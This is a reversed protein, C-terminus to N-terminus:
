NRRWYVRGRKEGLLEKKLVSGNRDVIIMQDLSRHKDSKHIVIDRIGSNHRWPLITEGALDKAPYGSCGDLYYVWSLSGTHCPEDSPAFSNVIVKGGRIAANSIVREGRNALPDPPVPFEVYWGAFKEPNPEPPKSMNNSANGDGDITDEILGYEIKEDSLERMVQGDMETEAVVTRRLLALGSSLKGEGHEIMRGLHESDDSDDGYDWVGYIAQQSEDSRDAPGLYKGTGFVVLYGPAQTACISQMRMVDPRGTIPQGTTQFLPMPEDGHSADIAGDGNKDRGYAVGWRDPDPSTLDFKWLNGKLDGAFAYDVCRNMDSDILAPTSLGNDDGAGTDIKRILKGNLADLVYLVARGNLSNYGNGFIVVPRFQGATTNANVIYAQSYSYGMDPDTGDDENMTNKDPEHDFSGPAPYEWLVINSIDNESHGDSLDKISFLNEYSGLRNGQTSRRRSGIRMCYYGKGGKGLGGVLLNHREYENVMIEGTYIDGDVYFRHNYTYDGDGLRHLRDIVLNPVYAFRENGTDADFAHLMGDNAGVFVIDEAFVPASHVIDGLISARPRFQPDPRGRLYELLQRARQDAASGSVLDSGLSVRQRESLFDFRFPIGQPERWPGGRTIIRRGDWASHTQRLKDAAQWLVSDTDVKQTESSLNLRYAVLDGSWDESNYHAKYASTGVILTSYGSATAASSVPRGFHSTFRELASNLAPLDEAHAYLGRGNLAAHRLDDITAPSGPVPLPWGPHHTGQDTSCPDQQYDLGGPQPLAMSGEVGFSIGYTVLHQHASPNCAVPSLLDPLDPALDNDFYYMAIDALTNEWPDSFPTGMSGDVNGVGSFSDEWYSGTIIVAYARQCAETGSAWRFPSEGLQSQRQTHFYRGVQDLALRLSNRGGSDMAYLADLVTQTRDLHLGTERWGALKIPQVGLSTLFNSSYLGIQIQHLNSIAQAVAAKQVFERRRYFSFWNTFNQLDEHDTKFRIFGGSADYWAPRIRNKEEESTVPVLTDDGVRPDDVGVFRFYRRRDGPLNNALDLRGNEDADAWTVLYVAEGPDPLANGNNDLVTFYHAVPIVLPSGNLRISYFVSAMDVRVATNSTKTPNSLPRHLDADDFPFRQTSSWPLYERYPNYYLRNHGHWQTKWTRHQQAQLTKDTGHMHDTSPQYASDPFLYYFGDLLGNPGPVLIESDMIASTDLIFVLSPPATEVQVDLPVDSIELAPALAVPNCIFLLIAAIIRVIGFHLKTDCRRM